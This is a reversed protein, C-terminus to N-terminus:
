WLMIQTTAPIDPQTFARVRRLGEAGKHCRDTFRGAERGARFALCERSRFRLRGRGRGETRAAAGGAQEWRWNDRGCSMCPRLQPVPRSGPTELNAAGWPRRAFAGGGTLLQALKGACCCAGLWSCNWGAGALSRLPASLQGHGLCCSALFSARQRRM